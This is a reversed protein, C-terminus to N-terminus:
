AAETLDLIKGHENVILNVLPPQPELTSSRKEYRLALSAMWEDRTVCLHEVGREDKVIVNAYKFRKPDVTYDFHPWVRTIRVVM